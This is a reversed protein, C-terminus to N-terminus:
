FGECNDPNSSKGAGLWRHVAPSRSSITLALAECGAPLSFASAFGLARAALTKSLMVLRGVDECLGGAAAVGGFATDLNSLTALMGALWFCGAGRFPLGKWM